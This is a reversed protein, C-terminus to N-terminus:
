RDCIEDAFLFDLCCFFICTVKRSLLSVYCSLVNGDNKYGFSKSGFDLSVLVFYAALINRTSLCLMYNEVEPTSPEFPFSFRGPVQKVFLFQVPISRSRLFRGIISPIYVYLREESTSLKHLKMNLLRHCFYRYSKM